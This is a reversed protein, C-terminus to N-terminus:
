PLSRDAVVDASLRGTEKFFAKTSEYRLNVLKINNGYTDIAQDRAMNYLTKRRDGVSKFFPLAADNSVKVSGLIQRQQPDPFVMEGEGEATKYGFRFVSGELEEPVWNPVVLKGGEVRILQEPAFSRNLRARAPVTMPPAATGTQSLVLPSMPQTLGNRNYSLRDRNIEIESNWRSEVTLTVMTPDSTELEAYLKDDEYTALDISTCASFLAAVVVFLICYNKM